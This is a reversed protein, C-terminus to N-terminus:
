HDHHSHSNHESHESLVGGIDEHSHQNTSLSEILNLGCIFTNGKFKPGLRRRILDSFNEGSNTWLTLKNQYMGMPGVDFKLIPSIKGPKVVPDIKTVGLHGCHSEVGIENILNRLGEFTFGDEMRLNSILEMETIFMGPSNVLITISPVEVFINIFRPGGIMAVNIAEDTSM